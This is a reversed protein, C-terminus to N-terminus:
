FGRGHEKLFVEEEPTSKRGLMANRHPFRGFKRIIDRHKTAFDLAMRFGAVFSPPASVAEAACLMTAYDQDAVDESHMFPLFLFNREALYFREVGGSILEGAIEKARADQAFAAGSHRHINRPFQDFLVVLGVQQARSLAALDWDSYAASTIAQGFRERITRDTEDSQRFWIEQKAGPSAEPGDLTGFWFAHVDNLLAPDM